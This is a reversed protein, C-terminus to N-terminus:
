LETTKEHTNASRRTFITDTTSTARGIRVTSGPAPHLSADVTLIGLKPSTPVPSSKLGCSQLRATKHATHAYRHATLMHRQKTHPILITASATRRGLPRYHPANAMHMGLRTGTPVQSAADDDECNHQRNTGKLKANHTQQAQPVPLTRSATWRDPTRDPTRM